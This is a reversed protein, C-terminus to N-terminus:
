DSEGDADEVLERKLVKGTSNRPLEDLFEVERPVKYNALNEKVYSKVEDASLKGDTVVFAKLRQGFKEDDVGVVAAERVKEHDALLDEVERPFVNEGGSVIMEDDRGDIFLRGDEDFHGVDGSSLLGDIEDKGGGGTYGEFKMENGVFIRGSEGAPLEEGDEGYIKVVSGRPPRGATGPAERLDKPSAITAYAVETSGYLNYVNEGFRDMWSNALQGPLASGSVATVKLSPLSYRDLTEDPLDLIRQMMVPVVALVTAESDALAELTKEPDFKTRVVTTSALALAMQLHSFGWAHFLPAAIMTRERAHLGLKALMTAVPSLSDPASRQAGKPLGTTGSTLIIFRPPDDPAPPTDSSGGEILSEITPHDPKGEDADHAGIYTNLDRGGAELAGSLLETFEDDYILASPEEREVVGTFQPAAFGTNMYLASAGLKACALTADVFWRHNRCMIAVGDGAHVGDERLANALRNSREHLDNFSLTGVEDVLGDDDGREIAAAAVATAPSTGWRQLAILVRGLKDPRIPHLIGVDALDKIVGPVDGLAGLKGLQLKTLRNLGPIRDSGPILDV